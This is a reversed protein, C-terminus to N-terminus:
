RLAPHCLNVLLPAIENLPLIWDIAVTANVYREQLACIAAKPMTPSEATTPEQVVALGGHAKISLLGESGDNSAGTLIVGIVKKGYADAVSEFLVNISPRAHCVPAETSLAFRGAEILLHYDAPALYVCGPIIAEKDEPELVPLACHQQLFLRLADGSDKHRHQVIALPVKFNKPLGALLIQLAHLGGLSTGIVVIEYSGNRMLSTARTVEEVSKLNQISFQFHIERYFNNDRLLSPPLPLSPCAKCIFRSAQYGLAPIAQGAEIGQVRAERSSQVLAQLRRSDRDDLIPVGFDLIGLNRRRLGATFSRVSKWRRM